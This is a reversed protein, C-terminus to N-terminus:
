RSPRRRRYARGRAGGAWRHRPPCVGATACPSGGPPSHGHRGAEALEREGDVEGARDAPDARDDGVQREADGGHGAPVRLRHAGGPDRHLQDAPRGDDRQGEGRQQGPQGHRQAGRPAQEPVVPHQMVSTSVTKAVTTKSSCMGVTLARASTARAASPASRPPSPPSRKWAPTPRSTSSTIVTSFTYLGRPRVGYPHRFCCSSRARGAGARAPLRLRLSPPAPRARAGVPPAPAGGRRGGPARSVVTAVAMRAGAAGPRRAPSRCPRPVRARGPASRGSRRGASPPPAAAPGRAPPCRRGGPRRCGSWGRRRAPRAGPPARGGSRLTTSRGTGGRAAGQGVLHVPRPRVGRVAVADEHQHQRLERRAAPPCRTGAPPRRRGRPWRTPWWPCPTLGVVVSACRRCDSATTARACASRRAAEPQPREAAGPGASRGACPVRRALGAPRTPQEAPHPSRGSRRGSGGLRAAVILDVLPSPSVQCSPGGATRPSAQPEKARQVLALRPQARRFPRQRQAPAPDRAQRPDGPQGRSVMRLPIASSRAPVGGIAPRTRRGPPPRLFTSTTSGATSVASCSTTSAEVAPLGWSARRQVEADFAVSAVARAARPYGTAGLM